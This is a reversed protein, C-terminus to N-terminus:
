ERGVGDEKPEIDAYFTPVVVAVVRAGADAGFVDAVACRIAQEVPHRVSRIGGVVLDVLLRRIPTQARPVETRFVVTPSTDANDIGSLVCTRGDDRERRQRRHAVTSRRTSRDHMLLLIEILLRSISGDLILLAGPISKIDPYLETIGTNKKERQRSGYLNANRTITHFEPHTAKTRLRYTIKDSM